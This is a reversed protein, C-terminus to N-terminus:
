AAASPRTAIRGHWSLVSKAAVPLELVGRGAFYDLTVFAIVDAISFTDGIVFENESLHEEFRNIFRAYSNRGREELEPIQPVGSPNGPIARGKFMELTNRVVDAAPLMCEFEVRRVWMDIIAKEKADRGFLPPDPNLEEFYRCISISETILTKDDLELAPITGRPNIKQFKLSFQQTAVTDVQETEVEINKEALYMRVRRPNPSPAFDYLKM